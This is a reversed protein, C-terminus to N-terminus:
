VIAPYMDNDNVYTHSVVLVVFVGAAHDKGFVGPKPGNWLQDERLEGIPLVDTFRESRILMALRGEGKQCFFLPWLDHQFRDILRKEFM